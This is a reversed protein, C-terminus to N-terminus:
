QTFVRVPEALSYEILVKEDFATIYDDNLTYRVRNDATRSTRWAKLDDIPQNAEGLNRIRDDVSMVRQVLENIIFDEGIQLNNVYDYVTSVVGRSIDSQDKSTITERFTLTLDMEMGIEKPALSFGRNGYSQVIDLVVQVAAM